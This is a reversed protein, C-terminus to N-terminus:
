RLLWLATTIAMAALTIWLATRVYSTRRIAQSNQDLASPLWRVPAGDLQLKEFVSRVFAQRDSTEGTGALYVGVLPTQDQPDIRGLGRTLLRDLEPRQRTRLRSLFAYLRLNGPKLLADRESFFALTWDAVAGCLHEALIALAAGDARAGRPLGKGFRQRHSATIGIRRMLERFGTDLECGGIVGVVPVDVGTAVRVTELDNSLARVLEDLQHRHEGLFAYPAVSLVGALPQAPERVRRILECLWALRAGLDGDEAASLQAQYPNRTSGTLRVSGSSAPSAAVQQRPVLQPAASPGGFSVTPTPSPRAEILVVEELDRDETGVHTVQTHQGQAPSGTADSDTVFTLGTSPPNPFSEVVTGGSPTGTTSGTAGTNATAGASHLDVEARKAVLRGVRDGALPVIWIGRTLEGSETQYDGIGFLLPGTEPVGELKYQVSAQALLAQGRKRDRIGLVLFVPWSVVDPSIRLLASWGQDVARKLDGAWPASPSLRSHRTAALSAAVTGSGLLLGALAPAPSGGFILGALSTTTWFSATLALRALNRRYRRSGTLPALLHAPTDGAPSDPLPGRQKALEQPDRRLAVATRKVWDNLSRPLRLEVAKREAEAERFFGRFGLMVCVYYVELADLYGRQAAEQAKAFFTTDADRTQYFDLELRYYNWRDKGVWDVDCLLDDVWAILAFEVWPWDERAGLHQHGAQLQGLIASREDLRDIAENREIRDLLEAVYIILGDVAQALEPTM